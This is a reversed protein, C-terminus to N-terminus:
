RNKSKELFFVMLVYPLYFFLVMPATKKNSM